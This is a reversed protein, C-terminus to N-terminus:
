RSRPMMEDVDIGISELEARHENLLKRMKQEELRKKDKKALDKGEMYKGYAYAASVFWLGLFSCIIFGLREECDRGNKRRAGDSVEKMGYLGSFLFWLIVITGVM